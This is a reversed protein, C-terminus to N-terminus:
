GPTGAPAMSAPCAHAKGWYNDCIRRRCQLAEGPAPMELCRQVLAAITTPPAPAATVSRTARRDDKPKVARSSDPERGARAMIAAVVDVDVDRAAPRPPPRVPTQRKAATRTAVAAAVVRRGEAAPLQSKTPPSGTGRGIRDASRRSATTKQTGNSSSGATSAPAPESAAAARLPRGADGGSRAEEMGGAAASAREVAQGYGSAASADARSSSSPRSSGGGSSAFAPSPEPGVADDRVALVTDIAPGSPSRLPPASAVPVSASLHHVQWRSWGVAVVGALLVMVVLSRGWSSPRDASRGLSSSPDIASLLPISATRRGTAAGESNLSPMGNRGGEDNSKNM